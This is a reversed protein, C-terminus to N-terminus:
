VELADPLAVALALVILHRSYHVKFAHSQHVTPHLEPRLNIAPFGRISVAFGEQGHHENRDVEVCIYLRLDFNHLSRQRCKELGKPINGFLNNRM